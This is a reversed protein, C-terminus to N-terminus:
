MVVEVMEEKANTLAQLEGRKNSALPNLEVFAELTMQGKDVFSSAATLTSMDSASVALKLTPTVTYIDFANDDKGTLWYALRLASRVVWSLAEAIPGAELELNTEWSEKSERKSEGSIALFDAEFHSQSWRKLMEATHHRISEIFVEPNVPEIVGVEPTASGVRKGTDKDYTAIGAVHLVVSPGLTYFTEKGQEDVPREGNIVYLQRHGAMRTNRLMGTKAENLSDQEDILSEDLVGGTGHELTHMLFEPREGERYFPNPAAESQGERLRETLVGATLEYQHITKDTHLEVFRHHQGDASVETYEYFHGLTNGHEDTVPGASRPDIVNLYIVSLAEVLTRFTRNQIRPDDSYTDPIYLRLESLLGWLSNRYADKLATHVGASQHWTTMADELTKLEAAVQLAEADPQEAGQTDLDQLINSGIDSDARKISWEPDLGLTGAVFRNLGPTIKDSIRVVKLFETKDEDDPQLGRYLSLQADLQQGNAYRYRKELTLERLNSAAPPKRAQELVSLRTTLLELM